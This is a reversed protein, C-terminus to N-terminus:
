KYQSCMRQVRPGGGGVASLENMDERVCAVVARWFRGERPFQNQLRKARRAATATDGARLLDRIEQVATKAESSLQDPAEDEAASGKAATASTGGARAGSGTTASAGSSKGGADANGSAADPVVVATITADATAADPTAAATLSAADAVAARHAIPESAPKSGTARVLFFTGGAAVM